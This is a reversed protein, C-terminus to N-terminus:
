LENLEQPQKNDDKPMYLAGKVGCGVASVAIAILMSFALLKKM